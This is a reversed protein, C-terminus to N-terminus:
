SRTAFEARIGQIGRVIDDDSAAYSVRMYGEGGPGFAVGPITIVHRRDLIRRCVALSPGFRSIDVFFYFAGEPMHFDIGPITSLGEAMLARRHRFVELYARREAESDPSLAALAAAQSISSACTVLYQHAAIIRAVIPAPGVAWGIRWGTM